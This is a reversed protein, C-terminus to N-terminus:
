LWYSGILIDYKDPKLRDSDEAAGPIFTLEGFYIKNNIEYLDVRVFEFIKSLKESINIMKSYNSPKLLKYNCNQKGKTFNLLEFNKDYLNRCHDEYRNADIQCFIFKGRICFMKYDKINDDLYEEVFVEPKIYKYHPEVEPKWNLTKLAKSKWNSYNNMTINRAKMIKIKRDKIIIIDGSGCNSKIICNKPLSKLDLGDDKKLVKITKPVHLDNINLNTIYDKVLLKDAFLSYDKSLQKGYLKLKDNFGITSWNDPKNFKPISINYNKTKDTNTKDIFTENRRTLLYLFLIFLILIIINNM